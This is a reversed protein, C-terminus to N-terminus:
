ENLKIEEIMEAGFVDKVLKVKGADYIETSARGAANDKEPEKAASRATESEGGPEDETMGPEEEGPAIMDKGADDMEPVIPEDAPPGAQSTKRGTGAQKHKGSKQEEELGTRVKIAVGMVEELAGELVKRHDEKEMEGRHFSRDAPFVIYLEGARFELPKGELLFAHTTIKGEKVKEKVQPWARRIAALDLQATDAPGATVSESGPEEEEFVAEEVIGTAPTEEIEQTSPSRFLM